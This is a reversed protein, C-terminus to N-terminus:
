KSYDMGYSFSSVLEGSPCMVEELPGEPLFGEYLTDEFTGAVTLSSYVAILTDLVGGDDFSYKLGSLYGDENDPEVTIYEM